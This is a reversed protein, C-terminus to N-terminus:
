SPLALLGKGSNWGNWIYLVCKWTLLGVMSPLVIGFDGGISGTMDRMVVLTLIIGLQINFSRLYFSRVTGEGKGVLWSLM